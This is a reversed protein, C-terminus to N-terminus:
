KGKRKVEPVPHMWRYLRCAIREKRRWIQATIREKLKGKPLSAYDTITSVTEAQRALEPAVCFFMLGTRWWRGWAIDIPESIERCIDLLKRAGALSILYAHALLLRRKYRGFIYDRGAHGRFAVDVLEPRHAALHVVDWNCNLTLVDAVVAAFDGTLDADDELVLARPIEEAAIRRWLNYHSLYCGIEAPLLERSWKRRMIDQRLRSEYDAPTLAAGDVADVIEYAAGLSDLRARMKERREKARALSIVFIPPFDPSPTM